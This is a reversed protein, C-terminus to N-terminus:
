DRRAPVAEVPQSGVKSSPRAMAGDRDQEDTGPGCLPRAALWGFIEDAPMPRAFHYGQLLDAGLDALADAVDADEVGEAVLRLNLGRALKATSAVIVRIRPDVLIDRVFSQDIKLEHVPLDKLYTLSSFGTGYDDISIQLGGNRLRMIVDLTREPQALLSEETIEVVVHSPPIGSDRVQTVLAGMVSASLLEAPAVNLSLGAALGARHWGAADELAKRVVTETILPMLGARRAVPLFEGPPVLGRVPHRWRVLAELSALERTRADVQPQYWVVLEDNAIGRALEQGLRLRYRTFEDRAPDYVAVGERDAKAQYMAVDARRLLEKPDGRRTGAAPGDIAVGVSCSVSLEIGDVDVV